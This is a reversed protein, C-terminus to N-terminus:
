SERLVLQAAELLEDASGVFSPALGTMLELVEDTNPLAELRWAMEIPNDSSFQDPLATYTYRKLIPALAVALAAIEPEHHSIWHAEAQMPGAYAPHYYTAYILQAFALGSPDHGVLHSPGDFDGTRLLVYGAEQLKFCFNSEVASRPRLDLVVGDDSLLRRLCEVRKANTGALAHARRLDFTSPATASNTMTQKKKTM